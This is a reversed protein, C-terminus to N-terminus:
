LADDPAVFEVGEDTDDAADAALGAIADALLADYEARLGNERSLRDVLVYMVGIDAARLSKYAKLNDVYVRMTGADCVSPDEWVAVQLKQIARLRWEPPSASFCVNVTQPLTIRMEPEYFCSVETNYM